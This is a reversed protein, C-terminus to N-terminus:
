QRRIERKMLKVRTKLEDSAEILQSEDFIVHPTFFMILESRQKSISKSGFLWGIWPLRVLGPIGSTNNSVQESILGGVAITDGDMMTIQTQVVQQDFATGISNSAANDVNSIEQNIILTVVGSSNVRANVQLTMGTNESSVGSSSV